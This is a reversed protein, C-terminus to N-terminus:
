KLKFVLLPYKKQSYEELDFIIGNLDKQLLEIISPM